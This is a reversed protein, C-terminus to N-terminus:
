NDPYNQFLGKAGEVSQNYKVNLLETRKDIGEMKKEMKKAQM